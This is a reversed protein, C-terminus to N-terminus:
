HHMAPMASSMEPAMFLTPDLMGFIMAIHAVVLFIAVFIAHLKLKREEDWGKGIVGLDLLAMGGLPVIGSLYFGVAIVDAIGRWEGAQTIPIVANIMLYVFVGSFYIGGTISAFRNIQRMAGHYQRSFLIYLETIAVTEALIVPIAMFLILNWPQNEALLAMYHTMNM